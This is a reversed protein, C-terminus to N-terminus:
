VDWEEIAYVYSNQDRDKPNKKRLSEDTNLMDKERTAKEKKQFVDVISYIHDINPVEEQYSVIYQLLIYVKM